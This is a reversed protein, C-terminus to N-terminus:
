GPRRVVFAISGSAGTNSKIAEEATIPEHEQVGVTVDLPIMSAASWDFHKMAHTLRMNEPVMASASSGSVCVVAAALAANKSANRGFCGM